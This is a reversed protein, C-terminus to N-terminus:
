GVPTWIGPIGGGALNAVSGAIVVWVCGILAVPDDRPRVNHKDALSRSFQRRHVRVCHVRVGRTWIDHEGVRGKLVHHDRYTHSYIV